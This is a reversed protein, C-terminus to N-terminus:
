AYNKNAGKSSQHLLQAVRARKSIMRDQLGGEPIDQLHRRLDRVVRGTYDKLKKLTKRMRKCPKAHAYRGGQLALRPALRAYSQRLEVGAEQALDVVQERVREYLRADTPYAINKEHYDYGGGPAQHQGRRDGRIEARGPHDPDAAM